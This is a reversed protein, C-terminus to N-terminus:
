DEESKEIAGFGAVQNIYGDRICEQAAWMEERAEDTDHDYGFLHLTGHVVTLVMEGAIGTGAQIASRKVFEPSIVVDGLPLKDWGDPPSFSANEEWLPFSLVDTTENILRYRFNLDRMEEDSVFSLAVVADQLKNYSASDIRALFKGVLEALRGCDIEAAAASDTEGCIEYFLRVDPGPSAKLRSAPHPM